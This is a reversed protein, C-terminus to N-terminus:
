VEDNLDIACKWLNMGCVFEKLEGNADFGRLEGKQYSYSMVANKVYWVFSDLIHVLFLLLFASSCDKEFYNLADNEVVGGDDLASLSKCLRLIYFDELHFYFVLIGVENIM